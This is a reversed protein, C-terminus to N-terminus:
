DMYDASLLCSGMGGRKKCKKTVCLVASNKITKERHSEASCFINQWLEWTGRPFEDM